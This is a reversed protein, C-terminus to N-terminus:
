GALGRQTMHHKWASAKWSRARCSREMQIGERGATMRGASHYPHDENRFRSAAQCAIEGQASIRGWAEAVFMARALFETLADTGLHPCAVALDTMADTYDTDEKFIRLAEQFFWPAPKWSRVKESIKDDQLGAGITVGPTLPERIGSRELWAVTRCDILNLLNYDPRNEGPSPPYAVSCFLFIPLTM